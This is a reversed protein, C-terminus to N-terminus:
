CVGHSGFDASSLLHLPSPTFLSPFPHESRVKPTCGILASSSSLDVGHGLFIIVVPSGVFVPGVILVPCTLFGRSGPSPLCLCSIFGPSPLLYLCVPFSSQVPNDICSSNHTQFCCFTCLELLLVFKFYSFLDSIFAFGM